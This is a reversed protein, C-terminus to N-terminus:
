EKEEVIWGIIGKRGCDVRNNEEEVIWGIIGRRGCDLRTNRKKWLGAQYEKEEM